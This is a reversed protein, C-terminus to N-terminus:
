GLIRKLCASAINFAKLSATATNIATALAYFGQTIKALVSAMGLLILGQFAVKLEETYQAVFRIADGTAHVAKALTEGITKAVAKLTKENEELTM